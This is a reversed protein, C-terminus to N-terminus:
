SHKEGSYVGLKGKKHVVNKHVPTLSSFERMWVSRILIETKHFSLISATFERRVVADGPPDM